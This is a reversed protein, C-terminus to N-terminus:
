TDAAIVSRVLEAVRCAYGWDADYWGVLKFFNDGLAMGSAADFVASAPCHVIDSGVVQDEAYELIGNLGSQSAERLAACIWAYTASRETRVTLDTVSGGRGPVLFAKGALKGRVQPLIHGVMQAVGSACPIVNLAAARGEAWHGRLPSDLVRQTEVSCRLNTVFGEVIGFHDLVVKVIPAVAHVSPTAASLVPHPSPLYGGDNIGSVIMRCVGKPAGAVIVRRAGAALHGGAQEVNRVLGTTEIVVDIGLERWPLTDPIVRPVVPIAWGDITLAGAASEGGIPRPDPGPAGASGIVGPFRGQISDHELLYALNDAPAPDAIAALEVESGVVGREVLARFVMRGMRGFGNIAVKTPM